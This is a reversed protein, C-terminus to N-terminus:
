EGDCCCTDMKSVKTFLESDFTKGNTQSMVRLTALASETLCTASCRDAEQQVTVRTCM